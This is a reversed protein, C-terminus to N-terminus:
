SWRRASRTSPRTPSRPSSSSSTTSSTGRSTRSCPWPRTPAWRASRSRPTRSWPRWSSACTRWRTASSRRGRSCTRPGAAAAGRAPDGPRGAPDQGRRAVGPLPAPRLHAAKIEDDPIIRGEELSAVFMKGPQLRGKQVVSEPPVDLVGAESAMILLNEDTLCYRSPRLGNRDLTAGILTGDTFAISAPGDWPEIIGGHFEYFAKRDAPMEPDKEWAEPILMMMVEPLSRGGLMLLEVVNDLMASDSSGEQAIPRMKQLEDFTFLESELLPERSRMWNVNGRVTNIEGNHALTRYPHALPWSPLTNTSFRSHILAIASEFAEDQLDPYYEPVQAPTLMGKYLLTRSSLSCIYFREATKTSERVMRTGYKRVVMLKREFADQSLTTPRRIFMQRVIPQAARASAGLTGDETPVERWGLLELGIEDLVRRLVLEVAPHRQTEQQFFCMGVAYDGPGPLNIGLSTCERLLFAHPIQVLIGAGDGTERSLAAPAM